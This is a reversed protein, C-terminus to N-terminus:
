GFPLLRMRIRDESIVSFHGQWDQRSTLAAFARENDSKPDRGTLRLLVIGAASPLRYRFALEGFDKDFTLLVLKESAAWALVQDDPMSPHQERVAYVTWGHRRLARLLPGPFNEDALVRM